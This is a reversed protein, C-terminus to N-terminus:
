GLPSSIGMKSRHKKVVKLRLIAQQLEAEAVTFEEADNRKERMIAEAKERAEEALKEDIKEYTKAMTQM